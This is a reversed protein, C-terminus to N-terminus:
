SSARPKTRRAWAARAAADHLKQLSCFVADRWGGGIDNGLPDHSPDQDGGAAPPLATTIERHLREVERIARDIWDTRNAQSDKRM